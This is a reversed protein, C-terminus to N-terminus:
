HNQNVLIELFYTPKRIIGKKVTGDKTIFYGEKKLWKIDYAMLERNTAEPFLAYYRKQIEPGTKKGWIKQFVTGSQVEELYNNVIEFDRKNMANLDKGRETVKDLIGRLVENLNNGIKNNYKRLNAALNVMLKKDEKTLESKKVGAYGEEKLTNQVMDDVIDQEGINNEKTVKNIRNVEVDIEKESPGKMTKLFADNMGRLHNRFSTDSIEQSNFALRSLRTDSADKVLQGIIDGLVPDYRDM